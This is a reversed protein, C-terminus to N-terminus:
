EGFKLLEARQNFADLSDQAKQNLNRISAPFGDTGISVELNDIASSVEDAMELLTLDYQYVKELEEEKIKVADFLGAYGYAATKVRDIFQRLKIAGIEIDDLVDLHGSSVLDRQIASLRQWQAQYKDAITERLLKDAARRDTRIFYGKFGPLKALLKKLADQQSVVREYLDSM